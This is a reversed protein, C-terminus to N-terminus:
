PTKPNLNALRKVDVGEIKKHSDQNEKFFPRQTSAMEFPAVPAVRRSEMVLGEQSKPDREWQHKIGRPTEMSSPDRLM